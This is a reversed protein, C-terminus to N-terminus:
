ANITIFSKCNYSALLSNEKCKELENNNSYETYWRGLINENMTM